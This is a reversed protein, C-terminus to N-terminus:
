MPIGPFEVSVVGWVLFSFIALHPSSIAILTEKFRNLPLSLSLATSIKLFSPSPHLLSIPFDRAASGSGLTDRFDSVYDCIYKWAKRESSRADDWCAKGEKCIEVTPIM